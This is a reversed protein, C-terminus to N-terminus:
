TKRTLMLLVIMAAGFIGAVGLPSSLVNFISTAGQQAVAERARLAAIEADAVVPAFKERIKLRALDLLGLKLEEGVSLTPGATTDGAPSNLFRKVTEGATDFFGM